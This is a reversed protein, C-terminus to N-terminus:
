RVDKRELYQKLSERSPRWDEYETCAEVFTMWDPMGAYERALGDALCTFQVQSMAQPAMLCFMGMENDNHKDMLMQWGDAYGKSKAKPHDCGVAALTNYAAAKCADYANNVKGM